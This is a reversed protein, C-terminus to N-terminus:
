PPLYFILHLLPVLVIYQVLTFRDTYYYTNQIIGLYRHDLGEPFLHLHLMTLSHVTYQSKQSKLTSHNGLSISYRHLKYLNNLMCASLMFVIYEM